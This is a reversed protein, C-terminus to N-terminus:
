RSRAAGRGPRLRVQAPRSQRLTDNDIAVVRMRVGVRRGIGEIVERDAQERHTFVLRRGDSTTVHVDHYIGFEPADWSVVIGNRTRRVRVNRPRPPRPAAEARFGALDEQIGDFEGGADEIVAHIHRTPDSGEEATFRISGCRPKGLDGRLNRAGPCTRGEATGLQETVDDVTPRKAAGDSPDADGDEIFRVKHGKLAAVRYRLVFTRDDVKEVDAEVRPPEAVYAQRIGVIRASGALPRVKWVGPAPRAIAVHTSRDDPNELILHNRADLVAGDRSSVIRRGGPGELAVRPPADDGEIRLVVGPDRGIRVRRTGDAAIVASRAVTYGQVNCSKAMFNLDRTRWEYGAGVNFSFWGSGVKICGAAGRSSVAVQSNACKDIKKVCVDGNGLVNFAARSSEYWGAVEGRLTLIAFDFGADFGFDISGASKYILYGGAVRRDFLTLTGRADIVWPRSDTYEVSGDLLMAKHGQFDPGFQIGAAGKVKLPPGACVALGVRDLFVGQALPVQTGLNTVFGGGYSFGGDAVGAFVGVETASATPLVLSASGDWRAVGPRSPCSIFPQAGYLPVGCPDTASGAGTYSLCLSKLNVQGVYANEVQIKVADAHVGAADVRVKVEGTIGGANQAPGAKFLEPLVLTAGLITYGRGDAGVGLRLEATGRASLGFLKQGAPLALSRLQREEGPGGAPLELQLSGRHLMLGAVALETQVAIRGGPAGDAPGTLALKTGPVVPVPLGNLKVADATEWRDPASGVQTLCGATTVEALAFAVRKECASSGTQASSATAAPAAVAALVATALLLTITRM